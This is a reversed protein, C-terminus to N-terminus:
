RRRPHAPLSCRVASRARARRTCWGARRRPAARSSRRQRSAGRTTAGRAQATSACRRKRSQRCARWSPVRHSRDSRKTWGTGARAPPAAPSVGPREQPLAECGSASAASGCGRRWAEGRSRQEWPEPNGRRRPSGRRPKRGTHRPRAQYVRLRHQPPQVGVAVLDHHDGVLRCVAELLALRDLLGDELLGASQHAEGLRVAAQVREAQM